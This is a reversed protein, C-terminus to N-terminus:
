RASCWQPGTAELSVCVAALIVLLGGTTAIM